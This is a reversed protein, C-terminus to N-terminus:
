DRFFDPMERSSQEQKKERYELCRSCYFFDIRTFIDHYGADKRKKSSRLFIFNHECCSTNIDDNM